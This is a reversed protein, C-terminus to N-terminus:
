RMMKNEDFQFMGKFILLFVNISKINKVTDLIEKATEYDEGDADSIGPTDIITICKGKGLYNGVSIQPEQTLASTGHGVRFFFKNHLM